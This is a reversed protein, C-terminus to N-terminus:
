ERGDAHGTIERMGDALAALRDTLEALETRGALAAHGLGQSAGAADSAAAVLRGYEDVGDRLEQELRARVQVLEPAGGGRMLATYEAAKSRLRMEAADASALTENRLQQVADSTAGAAVGVSSAGVLSAGASSGRVSRPAAAIGIMGVSQRLADSYADLRAILPRLAGTVARRDPGPPPLLRAELARRRLDRGAQVTGAVCYVFLGAVLVTAGVSTVTPDGQAIDVAGSAGVGLMALGALSWATLRRRAAVRRREAVYAPDRRKRMAEAATDTVTTVMDLGRDMAARVVAPTGRETSGDM